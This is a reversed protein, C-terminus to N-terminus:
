KALLPGRVVTGDPLLAFVKVPSKPYDKSSIHLVLKHRGDALTIGGNPRNVLKDGEFVALGATHKGANLVGALEKPITDDGVVTDADFESTLAGDKDTTMVFFASAAGEFDLDFVVDKVGDPKLNGDKEGVKDVKGSTAARAFSHITGKMPPPPAPVAASSAVPAVSATASPTASPLSSPATSVAPPPPLKPEPVGDGCAFMTGLGLAVGALAVQIWRNMALVEKASGKYRVIPAADM